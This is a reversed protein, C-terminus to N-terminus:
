RHAVEAHNHSSCAGTSHTATIGKCDGTQWKESPCGKQDTEAIRHCNAAWRLLLAFVFPPHSGRLTTSADPVYVNKKMGEQIVLTSIRKSFRERLIASITPRTNLTCACCAPLNAVIKDSMSESGAPRSRGDGSLQLHLRTTETSVGAHSSQREYTADVLRKCPQKALQAARTFSWSSCQLHHYELRM